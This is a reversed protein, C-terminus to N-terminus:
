SKGCDRDDFVKDLYRFYEDVSSYTTIKSRGALADSIRQEVADSLVDGEGPAVYNSPVEPEFGDPAADQRHAQAAPTTM